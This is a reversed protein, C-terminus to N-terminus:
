VGPPVHPLDGPTNSFETAAPQVPPAEVNFSVTKKSALEAPHGTFNLQIAGSNDDYQHVVLTGDHQAGLAAFQASSIGLIVGLFTDVAIITGVVQEAAPLGWLGSIAAYLTGLAPLLIQAVFKLVNYYGDTLWPRPTKEETVATDSM